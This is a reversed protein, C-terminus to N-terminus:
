LLDRIDIMGSQAAAKDQETIEYYKEAMAYVEDSPLVAINQKRQQEARKWIQDKLEKLTKEKKLLKRAVADTTCIATLHEEIKQVLPDDLEMMQETIHAIAQDMM